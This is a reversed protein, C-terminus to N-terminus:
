HASLSSPLVTSKGETEDFVVSYKGHLSRSLRKAALKIQELQTDKKHVVFHVMALERHKYNSETYPNGLLPLGHLLLWQRM